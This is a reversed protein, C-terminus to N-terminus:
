ASPRVKEAPPEVTVPPWAKHDDIRATAGDTWAGEDIPDELRLGANRVPTPYLNELIYLLLLTGVMILVFAVVSLTPTRGSEIKGPLPPNLVQIQVRQGDPVNSKDLQANLYGKMAKIAKENLQQAGIATNGKATLELLPLADGSGTAQWIVNIQGPEPLPRILARVEDSQALYAYVIALNSFRAPDAFDVGDAKDAPTPAASAQGSVAGPLTVRGWPFGPQTVFLRSKTAYVAESRWELGAGAPKFTAFIGLVIALLFGVILLLKWRMWVRLHHRLDM